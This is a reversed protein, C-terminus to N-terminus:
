YIFAGKGERLVVPEAGTCDVVTSPKHGAIGGDIVLDVQKKYDEYIDLPDTYYELIDDGSKLSATLLPRGLGEILAQCIANDPIRIGITRKKNKFLKPVDNNSNLVFTFPGPLHKKLARFIQNDIQQTYEALQSLDKCIISLRAKKPDLKRLRCIQEVAKKNFIDCGFAYVTDTPYIIIGGSQLIDVAQGIKRGEPNDSNINLRMKKRLSLLICLPEV